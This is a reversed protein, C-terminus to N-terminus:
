QVRESLVTKARAVDKRFAKFIHPKVAQAKVRYNSRANLLEMRHSKILANLEDTSKSRIEKIKM